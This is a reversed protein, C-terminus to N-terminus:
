DPAAVAEIVEVLRDHIDRKPLYAAAGALAAASAVDRDGSMVIIRSTARIARLHATADVGGVVPMRADMLVVDPHHILALDIADGGDGAVGVVDMTDHDRLYLELANAFGPDDDVILVRIPARPRGLRAVLKFLRSSLSPM